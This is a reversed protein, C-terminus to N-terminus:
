QGLDPIMVSNYFWNLIVFWQRYATKLRLRVYLDSNLYCSRVETRNLLDLSVAYRDYGKVYLPDIKICRFADCMAFYTYKRM